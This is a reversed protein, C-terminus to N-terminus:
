PYLSRVKRTTLIQREDVGLPITVTELLYRDAVGANPEIIDIAQDNRLGPHVVGKMSILEDVLAVKPLMANAVDQAQDQSRIGSSSYVLPRDGKPGTGDVPNYGPSDPNLDRAEARIPPLDSAEAIVVVRNYWNLDSLERTISEALMLEGREFTWVPEPLVPDLASLAPRMVVWGDDDTMAELAYDSLLSQLWPWCFDDTEAYRDALLSRGADDISFFTTGLGASGAVDRFITEIRTGADFQRPAPFRALQAFKIRDSGSVTLSTTTDDVDTVPRDIAFVGLRFWLPAGNVLLGREVRFLRDMFFADSVSRPTWVGDPNGLTLQATRRGDVDIAVSGGEVVDLDGGFEYEVSLDSRLLSVRAIRTHSLRLLEEFTWQRPPTPSPAVTGELAGSLTAIGPLSGGLEPNVVIVSGAITAVGPLAGALEVFGGSDANGVSNHLSLHDATSLIAPFWAIAVISARSPNASAVEEGILIANTTAAWVNITDQTTTVDVGDKHVKGTNAGNQGSGYTRWTGTTETGSESNMTSVGVKGVQWKDGSTWGAAYGNSGKSIVTQYAGTDTDRRVIAVIQKIAPVDLATTHAISTVHGNASYQRAQHGPVPCAVLGAGTHTMALGLIRTTAEDMFAIDVAGLAIAQERFSAM